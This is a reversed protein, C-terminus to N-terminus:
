RSQLVYGACRPLFKRNGRSSVALAWRHLFRPLDRVRCVSMRVSIPDEPPFLYHGQGNLGWRELDGGSARDVPWGMAKSLLGRVWEPESVTLGPPIRLFTHSARSLPHQITSKSPWNLWGIGAKEATIVLALRASAIGAAIVPDGLQNDWDVAVWSPPRLIEASNAVGVWWASSTYSRLAFGATRRNWGSGPAELVRREGTGAHTILISERAPWLQQWADMRTM